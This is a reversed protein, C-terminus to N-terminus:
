TKGETRHTNYIPIHNYNYFYKSNIYYIFTKHNHYYFTPLPPLSFVVFFSFFHNFFFRFLLEISQAGFIESFFFILEDDRKEERRKREREKEKKRKREREKEKKRKREREKEKKRKREREKEKNRKGRQVARRLFSMIKQNKVLVALVPTALWTADDM